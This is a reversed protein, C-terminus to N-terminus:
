RHVGTADNDHRSEKHGVVTGTGRRVRLLLLLRHGREHGPDVLDTGGKDIGTRREATRSHHRALADCLVTDGLARGRAVRDELRVVQSGRGLQQALM